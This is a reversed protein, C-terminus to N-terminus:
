WSIEIVVPEESSLIEPVTMDIEARNNQSSGRNLDKIDSPTIVTIKVPYRSFLDTIVQMTETDINGNNGSYIRHSYVTRGLKREVTIVTEGGSGAAANLSEINEFSYEATIFIEEGTDEKKFSVLTLGNNEAAKERFDKEEIPLPLFSSDSDIEATKIVMKSVRYKIKVTGSQSDKFNIETDIGICSVTILLFIIVSSIKLFKGTNKKM